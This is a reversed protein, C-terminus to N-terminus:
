ISRRLIMNVKQDLINLKNAFEIMPAQIKPSNEKLKKIKDYENVDYYIAEFSNHVNNWVRTGVKVCIMPLGSVSICHQQVFGSKIYTKKGNAPSVYVYAIRTNIPIELWKDKPIKKYQNSLFPNVSPKEVEQKKTRKM